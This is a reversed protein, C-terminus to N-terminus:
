LNRPWRSNRHNCLSSDTPEMVLGQSEESAISHSVPAIVDMQLRILYYFFSKTRGSIPGPLILDLQWSVSRASILRPSNYAAWYLTSSSARSRAVVRNGCWGSLLVVPPRHWAAQPSQWQDLLFLHIAALGSDLPETFFIQLCVCLFVCVPVIYYSTPNYDTQVNNM